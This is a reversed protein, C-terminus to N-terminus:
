VCVFATPACFVLFSFPFKDLSGLIASSIMKKLGVLIMTQKQMSLQRTQM